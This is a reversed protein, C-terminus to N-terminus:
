HPNSEKWGQWIVEYSLQDSRYATLRHTTPELGVSTEMHLYLIFALVKPKWGFFSPEIGGVQELLVHRILWSTLAYPKRGYMLPEFGKNTVM